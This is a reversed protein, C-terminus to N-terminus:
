KSMCLTFSKNSCHIKKFFMELAEQYLFDSVEPGNISIQMCAALYEWQLRNRIDTKVQLYM